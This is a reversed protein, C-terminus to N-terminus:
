AYGTDSSRVRTASSFAAYEEPPMTVETSARMRASEAVALVVAMVALAQIPPVPNEARGNM